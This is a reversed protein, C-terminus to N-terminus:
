TRGQDRLATEFANEVAPGAADARAKAERVGLEFAALLNQRSDNGRLSMDALLRSAGTGGIKTALDFLYSSAAFQRGATIILSTPGPGVYGGCQAALDALKEDIFEEMMKFYPYFDDEDVLKSLGLGKLINRKKARALGGKSGLAKATTSDAIKGDPHFQLPVTPAAEPAAVPDPLEDPPLVEVRPVGSGNGHGKRLAM